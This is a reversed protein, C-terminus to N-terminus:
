ESKVKSTLSFRVVDRDEIMGREAITLDVNEYLVSRELRTMMDAVILNSFTVGDIAVSASDARSYSTLWLHDPLRKNLEDLLMVEFTRNKELERIVRLHTDLERREATLREIQEIQPGLQAAQTKAEAIKSRLSRTRVGQVLFVVLLLGIVGGAVALLAVNGVKPLKITRKRVKQEPPLLNIRIM